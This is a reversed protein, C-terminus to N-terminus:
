KFLKTSSVKSITGYSSDAKTYKGVKVKMKKSSKSAVVIFGSSAPEQELSALLRFEDDEKGSMNAWSEKLFQMDKNKKESV